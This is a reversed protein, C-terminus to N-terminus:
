VMATSIENIHMADKLILLQHTKRIKALMWHTLLVTTIPTEKLLEVVTKM